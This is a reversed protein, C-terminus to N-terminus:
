MGLSGWVRFEEQDHSHDGYFGFLEYLDVVEDSAFNKFFQRGNFFIKCLYEISDQEFPVERCL